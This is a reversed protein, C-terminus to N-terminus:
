SKVKALLFMSHFTDDIRYSKREVGEISFGNNMMVKLSGVNYDLVKSYLRLMNLEETAFNSILGLAESAYGNNWYKRGIWYGVHAKRDYYEIDKLGIVGIPDGDLLILFDMAFPKNNSERNLDFFALCDERRYPHPFSHAAINVSIERDDALEAVRSAYKTDLDNSLTIRKGKLTYHKLSRQFCITFASNFTIFHNLPEDM